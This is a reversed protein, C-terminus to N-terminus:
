RRELLMNLGFRPRVTVVPQPTIPPHNDPLKLKFRQALTALILVGEMYAFAEAICLRPGAGFPFYAYKPRKEREDARWRTPDFKEPHHYFRADRGTVYPSMMVASGAKLKYGGIEVDHLVSRGITWVPAYLRLTEQFIMRAMELQPYDDPTPARGELVRDLEEHLAAEWQPNQSLLYWTWNMANTQSEHGAIFITMAEDRVQLDSMQEGNEDQSMLLMSLLDGHDEGTARREEIMRYIIANLKARATRFRRLTPTPLNELIRFAPLVLWNFAGMIDDMADSLNDEREIDIDLLTRGVIAMTLHKMSANVDIPAGNSYEFHTEWAKLTNQSCEIMMDGYGRVRERHFAPQSLRRQRRHFEGESTLLGGGIVRSMKRMVRGKTFYRPKRVLVEEVLDPHNLLYLDTKGFNVRVLDGHERTLNTFWGIADRQLGVLHRLPTLTKPGPPHLRPTHNKRTRLRAHSHTRGHARTKKRSQAGRQSPLVHSTEHSPDVFVAASFQAEGSKTQSLPSHESETQSPLPAGPSTEDSILSEPILSPM